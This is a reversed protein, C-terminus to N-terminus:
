KRLRFEVVRKCHRPEQPQKAMFYSSDLGLFAPNPDGRCPSPILQQLFRASANRNEPCIEGKAVEIRMEKDKNPGNGLYSTASENYQNPGNMVHPM